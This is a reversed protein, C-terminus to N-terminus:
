RRRFEEEGRRVEVGIHRLRDRESRWSPPVAPHGCGGFRAESHLRQDLREALSHDVHGLQRFVRDKLQDVKDDRLLVDRALSADRRVFADLADRTMKQAIESMLAIDIVPKLPPPGAFSFIVRGIRSIM